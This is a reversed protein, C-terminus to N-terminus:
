FCKLPQSMGAGEPELSTCLTGAGAEARGAATRPGGAGEREKMRGPVGPKLAALSAMKSFPPGIDAGRETM